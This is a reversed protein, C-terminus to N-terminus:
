VIRIIIRPYGDREFGILRSAVQWREDDTASGQERQFSVPDGVQYDQPIPAQKRLVAKSVRESCVCHVFAKKAEHRYGMREAFITTPDVQEQM